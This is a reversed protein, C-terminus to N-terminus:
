GKKHINAHFLELEKKAFDYKVQLKTVEAQLEKYRSSNELGWNYMKRLEDCLRHIHKRLNEVPM